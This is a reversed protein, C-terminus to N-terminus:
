RIIYPDKETGTGSRYYVNAKIYIIPYIKMSERTTEVAFSKGSFRYAQNNTDPVATITWEPEDLIQAIYNFNSCSRNTLSDCNLDLSARMYEYPTITSFLYTDESMVACETSGDKTSDKKNRAGICLNKGVLKSRHVEDLMEDTTELGKLYDKIVSEEFVNYGSYNKDVNNYRNDWKTALVTPLTSRLQIINNEDISMIRWKMNVTDKKVKRTGFVVYNNTIKGRFYYSGDTDQYLGSGSTVVEQDQLIQTYFEKTQYSEGCNLKTIYDYIAGEKEVFIDATCSDGDRLVKNLPKIYENDVLTQYSFLHKGDDTPLLEPHEKYYKETRSSIYEEAEFYDYYKPKLITLLWVIVLLLILVGLISGGLIIIKKKEM